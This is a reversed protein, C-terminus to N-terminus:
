KWGLQKSIATTMGGLEDWRKKFIPWYPKEKDFYKHGSPAFRWLDAMQYHSLGHIERIIDKKLPYKLRGLRGLSQFDKFTEM